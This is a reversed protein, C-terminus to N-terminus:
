FHSALPACSVDAPISAGKNLHSCWTAPTVCLQMLDLGLRSIATLFFPWINVNRSLPPPVVCRQLWPV